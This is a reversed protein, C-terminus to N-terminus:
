SKMLEKLDPFFNGNKPKFISFYEDSWVTKGEYCDFKGFRKQSM